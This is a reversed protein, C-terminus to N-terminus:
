PPKNLGGDGFQHIKKKLCFCGAPQGQEDPM